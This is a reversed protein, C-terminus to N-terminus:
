WGATLFAFASPLFGGFMDFVIRPMMHKEIYVFAKSIRSEVCFGPEMLQMWPMRKMEMVQTIMPWTKSEAPPVPPGDQDVIKM